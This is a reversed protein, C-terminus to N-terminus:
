FLSRFQSKSLYIFVDAIQFLFSNKVIFFMHDGYSYSLRAIPRERKVAVFLNLLLKTNNRQYCVNTSFLFNAYYLSKFPM